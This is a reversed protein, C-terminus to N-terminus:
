LFVILISELHLPQAFLLPHLSSSVFCNILFEGSYYKPDNYIVSILKLFHLIIRHIYSSKNVLIKQFFFYQNAFTTFNLSLLNDM